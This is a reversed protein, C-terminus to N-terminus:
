RAPDIRFFYEADRQFYRLTAADIVAEDGAASSLARLQSAYCQMAGDKLARQVGTLPLKCLASAQEDLSVLQESPRGWHWAWIPFEVLEVDSDEAILRRAARACAEHDPHRDLAWPAVLLASDFCAGRLAEDLDARHEALEGDPLDLFEVTAGPALTAVAVAAEGRRLEALEAPRVSPSGPHSAAGDSAVIVHIEIGSESAKAILGGAGLTEDDPHAALVVLRSHNPVALEVAERLWDCTSWDDENTGLDSADFTTV